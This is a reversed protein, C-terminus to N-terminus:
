YVAAVGTATAPPAAAVAAALDGLYQERAEEHLLSAMMHLGPPRRVLGPVWGRAAMAHAVASMDVAAAGFAMITLEPRGFIRMGPIAEIGGVYADRMALLRAAIIRYGDRGLHNLVAWAGAVGGGPRTGVLTNTMFRGGPWVDLDFGAVDAYGPNRFLI